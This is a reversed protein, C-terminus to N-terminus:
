PRRDYFAADYTPRTMLGNPGATVEDGVRINARRHGKKAFRVCRIASCFRPHEKSKRDATLPIGCCMCTFTPPLEKALGKRQVRDMKDVFRQVADLDAKPPPANRGKTTVAIAESVTKCWVVNKVTVNQPDGDKYGAHVKDPAPEKGWVQAVLLPVKLNHQKGDSGRLAATVYPAHVNMSMKGKRCWGTRQNQIVGTSSISYLEFPAPLPRFSM